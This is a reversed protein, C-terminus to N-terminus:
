AGGGLLVIHNGPLFAILFLFDLDESQTVKQSKLMGCLTRIGFFHMLKPSFHNASDATVVRYLAKQDGEKIHRM